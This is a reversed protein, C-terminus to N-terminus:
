GAVGGEFIVVHQVGARTLERARMEAESEAESETAREDTNTGREDVWQVYLTM